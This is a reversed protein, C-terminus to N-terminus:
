GQHIAKEMKRPGVLDMEKEKLGSKALKNGDITAWFDLSRQTAVMAASSDIKKIQKLM